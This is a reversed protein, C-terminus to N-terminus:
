GLASMLDTCPINVSSVIRGARQDITSPLGLGLAAGRGGDHVEEILEDLEALFAEQSSM